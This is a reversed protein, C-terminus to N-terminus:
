PSVEVVVRKGTIALWRADNMEDLRFTTQGGHRRRFTEVDSANKLPVLAPGMPGVVDSGAVFIATSADIHEGGFYERVVARGLKTRPVGLYVDPHLWSKIMCGTGCFYHSHGDRREIASLFPRESVVDMACVPCRDEASPRMRGAEDLGQRASIAVRAAGAEGDRERCGGVTGSSLLLMVILLREYVHFESRQMRSDGWQVM